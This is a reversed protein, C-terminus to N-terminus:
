PGSLVASCLQGFLFMSISLREGLAPSERASSHSCKGQKWLNGHRPGSVTVPLSPGHELAERSVSDMDSICRDIDTVAAVSGGNNQEVSVGPGRGSPVTYGRLEDSLAERNDAGVKATIAV